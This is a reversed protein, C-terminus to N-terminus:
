ERKTLRYNLNEMKAIGVLASLLKKYFGKYDIDKREVKWKLIINKENRKRQKYQERKAFSSIQVNGEYSVQIQGQNRYSIGTCSIQLMSVKNMQAFYSM